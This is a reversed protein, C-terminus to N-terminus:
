VPTELGIILQYYTEPASEILVGIGAENMAGISRHSVHKRAIKGTIVIPAKGDLEITVLIDKEGEVSSSSLIFFGRASVNTIFGRKQRGAIRYSCPIRWDHRQYQRHEDNDRPM